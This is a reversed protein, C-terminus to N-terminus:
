WGFHECHVEVAPGDVSICSAAVNRVVNTLSDPGCSAILVRQNKDLSRVAAKIEAETDPRGPRIPLNLNTMSTAASPFDMHRSADKEERDSEYRTAASSAPGSSAIFDGKGKELASPGLDTTSSDSAPRELSPDRLSEPGLRTVHVKLAIKPAHVHNRLNNLHQTFWSLNDHGKVAWIFDIQQKSSESMRSLMDAAIGFTFTAGSGGAVLVVKDFDMPDPLTGYPGEVSVKLSAGPNKLAYNHLDSTFGSYSNIVLEFPETAVITFPHTEFTRIKPLWVYCHKGPRARSIPKKLVIRTGGDPLAYINAENNVSNYALRCFRILRDAFWLAALIITAYLTQESELEPRHLGLGVVIAFFLIVHAIYFLEYNFRRLIMGAMVSGFMTFGAVIGGTVVDERLVEIRGVGIFYSAYISGHLIVYLMTTYGAIRHLVNLREYSYATLFALPTNKLALFIVFVLNGAAMWGFRAAVNAYISFDVRYFSFTANMAVYVIVLVAHGVSTFGTLNRVFIRRAIRSVASFPLLIPNRSRSWGLKVFVFRLWHAIIFVGILASLSAAYYTLMTTNVKQRAMLWAEQANGSSSSTATASAQPSTSASSM